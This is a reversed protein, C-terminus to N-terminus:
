GQRLRWCGKFRQPDAIDWDAAPSQRHQLLWVGDLECVLQWNDSSENLPQTKPLTLSWAPLVYIQGGRLIGRTHEFHHGRADTGKYYLWSLTSDPMAIRTQIDALMGAPATNITTSCAALLALAPLILALTRTPM